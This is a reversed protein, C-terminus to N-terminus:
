SKAIESKNEKIKKLYYDLVSDLKKRYHLSTYGDKFSDVLLAHGILVFEANEFYDIDGLIIVSNKDPKEKETYPIITKRKGFETTQFYWIGKIEQLSLEEKQSLCQSKIRNEEFIINTFMPKFAKFTLWITAIILAVLSAATIFDVSRKAFFYIVGLILCVCTIILLIGLIKGGQVHTFKQEKM